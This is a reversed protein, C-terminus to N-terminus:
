NSDFNPGERWPKGDRFAELHTTLEKRFDDDTALQVAKDQWKIAAEYDGAEAYAAALTDVLGADKHETLECAKTALEVARKGDRLSDEPATALLWALENLAGPDDSKLEVALRFDQIAPEYHGSRVYVSGRGFLIEPRDPSRELAKSFDHVAAELKGSQNNCYGRLYWGRFRSPAAAIASEADALAEDYQGLKLHTIGRNELAVVDTPRLALCGYWGVLAEQNRGETALLLAMFFLGNYYTPDFRLMERHSKYNEEFPYEPNGRFHSVTGWRRDRNVYSKLL